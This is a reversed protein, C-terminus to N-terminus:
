RPNLAAIPAARVLRRTWADMEKKQTAEAHDFGLLHLIGHALLWRLEELLPRRRGNAHRVATDLSIVIDGLLRPAAASVPAHVSDFHFSLVDTARDKHCHERNLRRITEDDTLLVSLEADFLDLRRLMADAM